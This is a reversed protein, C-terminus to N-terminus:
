AGPALAILNFNIQTPDFSILKHVVCVTDHLLRSSPGHNIATGNRGDLEYLHGDIQVFCVFHLEVEAQADPATTQGDQAVDAHIAALENDSQELYKARDDPSLEKTASMFKGFAGTGPDVDPANALAHIVGITGCANGITQKVFYIRSSLVQGQQSITDNLEKRYQEYAETIPFLLLVAQVPAPVMQLLEEDLGWVDQFVLETRVGLKAAYQNLIEPNSELPVWHM